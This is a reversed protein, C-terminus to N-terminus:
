KLKNKCINRCSQIKHIITQLKVQNKHFKTLTIINTISKSHYIKMKTKQIKQKKNNNQIMRHKMLHRSCYNLKIRNKIQMKVRLKRKIKKRKRQNPRISIKNFKLFLKILLNHNHNQIFIVKSAFLKIHKQSRQNKIFYIM